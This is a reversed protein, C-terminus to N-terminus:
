QRGVPIGIASNTIIIIVFQKYNSLVPGSGPLQPRNTHKSPFYNIVKEDKQLNMWGSKEKNKECLYWNTNCYNKCFIVISLFAEWKKHTIEGM